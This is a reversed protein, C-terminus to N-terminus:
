PARPSDAALYDQPHLTATRCTGLHANDGQAALPNPAAEPFKNKELLSVQEKGVTLRQSVQLFWSSVYDFFLHVWPLLHTSRVMDVTLFDGTQISNNM